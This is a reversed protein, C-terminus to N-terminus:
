LAGWGELFDKIMDAHFPDTERLPPGDCRRDGTYNLKIQLM